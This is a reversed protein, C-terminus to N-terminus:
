GEKQETASLEIWKELTEGGQLKLEVKLKAGESLTSKSMLGSVQQFYQYNVSRSSSNPWRETVQGNEYLTVRVNGRVQKKHNIAQVLTIDFALQGGEYSYSVSQIAPGSQGGEPSIISRYFDLRAGLVSNKQESNGYALSLQKYAEEQIQKQRQAFILAEQAKGLDSEVSNLRDRLTNLQGQDIELQEHGAEVGRGYALYLSAFFVFLGGVVLVMLVTTSMKPKITLDNTANRIM